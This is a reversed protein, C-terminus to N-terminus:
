FRRGQDSLSPLAPKRYVPAEPALPADYETPIPHVTPTIGLLEDWQELSFYKQGGTSVFSAGWEADFADASMRRREREIFKPDLHTAMTWDAHVKVFGSEEDQWQHYFYGKQGNPTSSLVLRNLPARRSFIPTLATFFEDDAIFAAEDCVLIGGSGPVKEGSAYTATAFPDNEDAGLSLGRVNEKSQPLAIFRCGRDTEM